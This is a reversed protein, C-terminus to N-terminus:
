WWRIEDETVMEGTNSSLVVPESTPTDQWPWREHGRPVSPMSRGRLTYLLKVWESETMTLPSPILMRAASNLATVRFTWPDKTYRCGFVPIPRYVGSGKPNEVGLSLLGRMTSESTRQVKAHIFKYEVIAAATGDDYELFLDIDVAPTDAGWMRHRNSLDLDRWNTRESRSM